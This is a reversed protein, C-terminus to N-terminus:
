LWFKLAAELFTYHEKEGWEIADKFCIRHSCTYANSPGLDVQKVWMFFWMSCDCVSACFKWSHQMFFSLPLFFCAQLYFWVFDRHCLNKLLIGSNRVTNSLAETLWNDVQRSDKKQLSLSLLKYYPLEPKKSSDTKRDREILSYIYSPYLPQAPRMCWSM